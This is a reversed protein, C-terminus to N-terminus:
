RKIFIVVGAIVVAVFAASSNLIVDMLRGDRGIIFYQNFEDAFGVFSAFLWSFFLRYRLKWRALNLCFLLALSAYAIFHGIKRLIFESSDRFVGYPKYFDSDLTVLFSIEFESVYRPTEIWTSPDKVLLSPSSSFVAIMFLFLFLLIKRM